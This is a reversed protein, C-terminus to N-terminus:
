LSQLRLKYHDSGEYLYPLARSVATVKLAKDSKIHILNCYKYNRFSLMKLKPKMIITILRM